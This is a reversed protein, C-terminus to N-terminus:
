GLSVETPAQRLTGPGLRSAIAAEIGLGLHAVDDGVGRLAVDGDHRLDLHGAMRQRRDDGIRLQGGNACGGFLTDLSQPM